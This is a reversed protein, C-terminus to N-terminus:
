QKRRVNTFLLTPNKKSLLSAEEFQVTSEVLSRIERPVFGRQFTDRSTLWGDEHPRWEGKSAARNVDSRGRVAVLLEGGLKVYSSAKELCRHRPEPPLVNLVYIIQVYDFKGKPLEPYYHPDYLTVSEALTTLLQRDSGHGAGWDLVRKHIARSHPTALVLPASPGARAIATREPYIMM